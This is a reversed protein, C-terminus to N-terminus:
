KISDTNRAPRANLPAPQPTMLETTGEVISAPQPPLADREQKSFAKTQESASESQVPTSPNLSRHLRRMGMILFFAGLLEGLVLLIWGFVV